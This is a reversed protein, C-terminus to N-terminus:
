DTSYKAADDEADGRRLKDRRERLWHQTVTWIRVLDAAVEDSLQRKEDVLCQENSLLGQALLVGPQRLVIFRSADARLDFSCRYGRVTFWLVAPDTPERLSRAFDAAESPSLDYSALSARTARDLYDRIVEESQGPHGGAAREDETGSSQEDRDRIVM